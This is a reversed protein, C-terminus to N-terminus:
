KYLFKIFLFLFIIGLSIGAMVDTFYHVGLYIRSLGILLILIILLISIIRKTVSSLNSKNVLYIIFGYFAMSVMSHGSPFSYGSETILNIGIPRQRVFIFKIIFNLLSSLILNIGLYINNKKNDFIIFGIIVITILIFKDGFETIIRFLNTLPGCIIPEILSYVFEDIISLKNMLLLIILSIFIVLGSFFIINDRKNFFVKNM